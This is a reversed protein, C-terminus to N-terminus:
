KILRLKTRVVGEVPRRFRKLRLAGIYKLPINPNPVIRIDIQEQRCRFNQMLYILYKTSLFLYINQPSNSHEGGRLKLLIIFM